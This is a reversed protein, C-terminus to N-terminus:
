NSERRWRRAIENAIQESNWDTHRWRLHAELMQRMTREAEFVMAVREAPTKKRLIEVVRDDLVEVCPRRKAASPNVTSM